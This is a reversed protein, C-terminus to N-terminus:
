RMHCDKQGQSAVALGTFFEGRATHISRCAEKLENSQEQRDCGRMFDPSIEPPPVGGSQATM